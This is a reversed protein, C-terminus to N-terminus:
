IHGIYGSFDSKKVAVPSNANQSRGKLHCIKDVRSILLAVRLVRPRRQVHPPKKLIADHYVRAPWRPITPQDRSSISIRIKTFDCLYFYIYKECKKLFNVCKGTIKFSTFHALKLFITRASNKKNCFCPKKLILFFNEYM